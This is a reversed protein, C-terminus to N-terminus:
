SDPRSNPNATPAPDPTDRLSPSPWRRVYLRAIQEARNRATHGSAVIAQGIRVREAAASDGLLMSLRDDMGDTDGDDYCSVGADEGFTRALFGSATTHVLCGAAVAEFIREHAGARRPPTHTLLLRARAMGAPADGFAVHDHFVINDSFSFRDWPGAGFVHVTTRRIGQLLRIRGLSRFYADIGPFFANMMTRVQGADPNVQRFTHLLFRDLPPREPGASYVAVADRLVPWFPGSQVEISRLLEDPDQISGICVVDYERQEGGPALCDRTCCFHPIFFIHPFEYLERGFEAWAEDVSVVACAAANRPVGSVEPMFFDAHFVPHDVLWALHRNDATASAWKRVLNFGLGLEDKGRGPRESDASVVSADIGLARFARALAAQWTTFVDYRSVGHLIQIGKLSNM